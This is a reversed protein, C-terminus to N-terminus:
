VWVALSQAREGTVIGRQLLQGTLPTQATATCCFIFGGETNKGLMARIFYRHAVLKFGSVLLDLVSVLVYLAPMAYFTVKIVFHVAMLALLWVGM